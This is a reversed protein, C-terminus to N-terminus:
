RRNGTEDYRAHRGGRVFEADLMARAGLPNEDILQCPHKMPCWRCSDGPSPYAVHTGESMRREVLTLMDEVIAELQRMRNPLASAHGPVRFREVMPHTMRKPNKTKFLVTYWAEGIHADPHMRQVLGQYCIHQFSKELVVPLTTRVHPSSTKLDDTFIWGDVRRTLKLDAKGILIARGDCIPAELKAEHEVDYGDYPGEDEVWKEYAIICNRGMIIDDYLQDLAWGPASATLLETEDRTALEQFVDVTPRSTKRAIEVAAHVRSGAAMPGWLKEPERFDDIYGWAFQRRCRLFSAIDSHSIKIADSM